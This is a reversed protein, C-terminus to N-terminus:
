GSFGLDEPLIEENMDDYIFLEYGCRPCVQQPDPDFNMFKSGCVHCVYTYPEM